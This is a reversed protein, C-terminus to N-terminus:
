AKETAAFTYGATGLLLALASHSLFFVPGEHTFWDAGFLPNLWLLAVPVLLLGVISRARVALTTGWAAAGLAIAIMYEPYKADVSEMVPWALLMALALAVYSPRPHLPRVGLATWPAKGTM